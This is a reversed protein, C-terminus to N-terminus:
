GRRRRLGMWPLLLWPLLSVAVGSGGCQCGGPQDPPRSGGPPGPPAGDDDDGPGDDDDGEGCEDPEDVAGDCDDDVGNDCVEAAAPHVSGDEDDCDGDCATWGDGDVDAEEYALHGDCDNDIGDCPDEANGPFADPEGDDCDGINSCQPDTCSYPLFGDADADTCSCGPVSIGVPQYYQIGAEGWKIRFWGAYGTVGYTDEGWWDGWSNKGIWCQEADNWGLLVVFHGGGGGGWVHEYVGGEYYSFDSYVEMWAGIPAIMIQQKMAQVDNDIYHWETLRWPDSDYDSCAQNCGVWDSAQYPLCTELHTGHQQLFDMTDEIYWGGCSGWSCSLLIQESLNPDFGPDGTAINYRAEMMAVGAFAWCSGCSGQDRIPTMWNGNHDRWDFSSPLGRGEEAEVIPDDPGPSPPFAGTLAAREEPPLASVSTHGAQWDAGAAEIAARIAELEADDARAGPAWILVGLVLLGIVLGRTTLVSSAVLPTRPSPM